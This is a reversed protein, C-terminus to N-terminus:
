APCRPEVFVPPHLYIPTLGADPAVGADARAQALQAVAAADPVAVDRFLSREGVALAVLAEPIREWDPSAIHADRPIAADAEACPRLARDGELEYAGDAGRQFVSIWMRDRRADGVVAVSSASATPGMEAALALDSPIGFVPKGGPLAYARVASVAIRLGTFGGPGIGVAYADIQSLSLGVDDLAAPLEQFVQQNRGRAEHWRREVRFEGDQVVALSARPTSQELALLIL